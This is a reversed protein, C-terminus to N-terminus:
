SKQYVAATQQCAKEWSFQDFRQFGKEVLAAHAHPNNMFAAMCQTIEDPKLPDFLLAAPGAIEATSSANAALVPCGVSFAELIPLGFGEYLSPYVLAAAAQYLAQLDADTPAPVWKIKQGLGLQTLIKEEAQTFPGGGTCVLRWDPFRDQLRAFAQVWGTFNKYAFRQGVYLLFPNEPHGNPATHPLPQPKDWSPGHYVVTTKEVPVKYQEVLDAQTHQSVVIIHDAKEIHAKRQALIKQYAPLHRHHIEDTLDHITIVLPRGPVRTLAALSYYTPHFVQCTSRPGTFADYADNLGYCFDKQGKWQGQAWWPGKGKWAQWYQNISGLVPTETKVLDHHAFGKLLSLFYRSIGGQRQLSFIQHDYRITM